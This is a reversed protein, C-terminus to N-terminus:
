FGAARRQAFDAIAANLQDAAELTLMHPVGPFIQIESDAIRRALERAM